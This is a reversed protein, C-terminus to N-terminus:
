SLEGSAALAELGDMLELFELFEDAPDQEPLDFSLILIEQMQEM